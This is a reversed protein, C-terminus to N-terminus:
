LNVRGRKFPPSAQKPDSFYSGGYLVEPLASLILAANGSSLEGRYWQGSHSLGEVEMQYCLWRRGCEKCLELTVDGFRGKATDTGLFFSEFNSARLPPNQCYPCIQTM